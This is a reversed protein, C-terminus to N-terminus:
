KMKKKKTKLSVSLRRYEVLEMNQMMIKRVLILELLNVTLNKKQHLETLIAKKMLKKQQFINLLIFMLEFYYTNEIMKILKYKKKYHEYFYPDIEYIKVSKGELIKENAFITGIKLKLEHEPCKSIEYDSIM